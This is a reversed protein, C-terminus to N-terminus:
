MRERIDENDERVLELYEKLEKRYKRVIHNLATGNHYGNENLMKKVRIIENSIVDDLTELSEIYEDVM